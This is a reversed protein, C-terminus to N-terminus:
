SLLEKLNTKKNLSNYKNNLPKNKNKNMKSLNLMLVKINLCFKKDIQFIQTDLKLMKNLWILQIQNLRNMMQIKYKQMTQIKEKQKMKILFIIEKVNKQLNIIM